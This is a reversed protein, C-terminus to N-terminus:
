GGLLALVGVALLVWLVTVGIPFRSRNEDYAPM